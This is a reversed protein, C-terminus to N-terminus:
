ELNQFKTTFFVKCVGKEKHIKDYVSPIEMGGVNGNLSPGNVKITYDYLYLVIITCNSKFLWFLYSM